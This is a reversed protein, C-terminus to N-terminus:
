DALLWAVVLAAATIDFHAIPLALVSEIMGFVGKDDPRLM